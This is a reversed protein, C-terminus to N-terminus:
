WVLRRWRFTVVGFSRSVNILIQLFVEEITISILKLLWKLLKRMNKDVDIYALFSDNRITGFCIWCIGNAFCFVIEGVDVLLCLSGPGLLEDVLQYSMTALGLMVYRPNVIMNQHKILCDM